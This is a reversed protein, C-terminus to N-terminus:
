ALSTMFESGQGSSTIILKSDQFAQAVCMLLFISFLFHGVSWVGCGYGWRFVDSTGLFLFVLVPVHDETVRTFAVLIDADADDSGIFFCRVSLAEFRGNFM